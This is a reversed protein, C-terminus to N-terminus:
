PLIEIPTGDAVAHWIEDMEANTVAICGNTWDWRGHQAGPAELRRPFGHIMIDGGPAVGLRRARARDAPNPYSIHISRYFRSRPNRWDLVYRGEPTRGDGERVKAGNPNRGLAVRYARVVAGQRLLLLRRAGKLVVIKDAKVAPARAYAAGEAAAPPSAGLLLISLVSFSVARRVAVEGRFCAGVTGALSCSLPCVALTRGRPRGFLHARATGDDHQRRM